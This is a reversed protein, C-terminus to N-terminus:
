ATKQIIQHLYTYAYALQTDELYQADLFASTLEDLIQLMQMDCYGSYDLDYAIYLQSLAADTQTDWIGDIDSFLYGLLHLRQEMALIQEQSSDTYFNKNTDMPVCSASEMQVLENEISITPTIGVDNYDGTEPLELTMTALVLKDGYFTWNSLGVAKGYTTEGILTYGLDKLCGSVVEASSCTQKNVLVLIDDFEAGGGSSLFSIDEDRYHETFLLLDEEMILRNLLFELYSILGGRNDRLDLILYRANADAFAELAADVDEEFTDGRFLTINLYAIDGNIEWSVNPIVVEQAQLEFYLIQNEGPRLIGLTTTDQIAESLLHQADTYSLTRIDTQGISCILDGAQLGAKGAASNEYISGIRIFPGYASVAAGLGTYNENDPYLQEYVEPASLNSYRDYHSLMLNALIYYNQIDAQIESKFAKKIESVAPATDTEFYAMYAVALPDDESDAYIHEQCILKALDNLAWMRGTSTQYFANLLSRGFILILSAVSVGIIIGIIVPTKLKKLSYPKAM